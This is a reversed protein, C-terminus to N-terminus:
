KEHQAHLTLLQLAHADYLTLTNQEYLYSDVRSLADLFTQETKNQASDACAMETRTLPGFSIQNQEIEYTGSFHNCGSFGRVQKEKSDFQVTIPQANQVSPIQWATAELPHISTVTENCAAVGLLLIMCLLARM